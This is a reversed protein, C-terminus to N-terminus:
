EGGDTRLHNRREYAVMERKDREAQLAKIIALEVKTEMHKLAEALSGELAAVRQSLQRFDEGTTRFARAANGEVEKLDDKLENIQAFIQSIKQDQKLVDKTTDQVEEKIKGRDEELKDVRKGMQYHNSITVFSEKLASWWSLPNLGSGPPKLDPPQPAPTEAM